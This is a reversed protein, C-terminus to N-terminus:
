ARPLVGLLTSTFSVRLADRLELHFVGLEPEEAYATLLSPPPPVYSSLAGASVLSVLCFLPTEDGLEPVHRRVLESMTALRTLSSRKHRKVVEVSVNRELVSGQAGFLDCLVVREALSRSLIEALQGAREEPASQAEIGTALEDALEALWSELFDDLLELLVAERSEFYRLVNSKALGVRRSLENLSVEAVPMEDLMAAATDLIARRRIERQEESRARQFAM